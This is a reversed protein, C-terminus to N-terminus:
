KAPHPSSECKQWLRAFLKLANPLLPRLSNHSIRSYAGFVLLIPILGDPGATDNVAKVIMQLISEKINIYALESYFTKFTKRFLQHYRKVNKHKL